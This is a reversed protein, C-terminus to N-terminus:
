RWISGPTGLSASRSRGIMALPEPREGCRAKNTSAHVVVLDDVLDLVADGSGGGEQAQPQGERASMVNGYHQVGGQLKYVKEFGQAKLRASFYECRIGGTCYMMVPTEKRADPDAPLGFSEADFESFHDLAPREAGDFRGVDWEYGNRVDLVRVSSTNREALM